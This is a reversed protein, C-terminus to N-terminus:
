RIFDKGRLWIWAQWVDKAIDEYDSEPGAIGEGFWHAFEQHIVMRAEEVSNCDKLRPLITGVEPEYEDTNTEFNIGIPDHEFLIESVREFLTVHMERLRERDQKSKSM